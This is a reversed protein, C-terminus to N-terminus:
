RRALQSIAGLPDLDVVAAFLRANYADVDTKPQMVDPPVPLWMLLGYLMQARYDLFLTDISPPQRVGNQLLQDRYLQLWEMEHARRDEISVSTGIFYALDYASNGKRIVQWDAIIPRGDPRFAMNKVHPDGHLVAWPQKGTHEMLALFAREVENGDRLKSPVPGPARDDVLVKIGERMFHLYTQGLPVHTRIWSMSRLEDSNWLAAHLRALEQVVSAARAPPAGRVASGWEVDHLEELVLVFTGDDEIESYFCNPASIDIRQKLERYFGVEVAYMGDARLTESFPNEFVTKLFLREPLGPDNRRYTARLRVRTSTGQDPAAVQVDAVEVGAHHRSIAATLWAADIESAKAPIALSAQQM